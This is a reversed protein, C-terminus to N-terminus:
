IDINHDEMGKEWFSYNPNLSLDTDFLINLAKRVYDYHPNAPVTSRSKCKEVYKELENHAILYEFQPLSIISFTGWQLDLKKFISADYFGIYGAVEGLVSENVVVLRFTEKISLELEKTSNCQKISKTLRDWCKFLIDLNGSNKDFPTRFGFSNKCEVIFIYNSTEITFDAREKQSNNADLDKIKIIKNHKKYHKLLLLIYKNLANGIHNTDIKNQLLVWFRWGTCFIFIYPSPIFYHMIGDIEQKIIPTAFFPNLDYTPYLFNKKLNDELKQYSSNIEKCLLKELVKAIDSELQELNVESKRDKYEDQLLQYLKDQTFKGRCEIAIKVILNLIQHFRKASVDAVVLKDYDPLQSAILMSRAIPLYSYKVEIETNLRRVDEAYYLHEYVKYAIPYENRNEKLDLELLELTLM